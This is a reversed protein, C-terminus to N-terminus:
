YMNNKHMLHCLTWLTQCKIDSFTYKYNCKNKKHAPINHILKSAIAKQKSM